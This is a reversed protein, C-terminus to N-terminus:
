KKGLFGLKKFILLMIASSAIMSFISLPFGWWVNTGPINPFNMSYISAIVTVPAFISVCITIVKMAENIRNNAMSLYMDMLNRSMDRYMDVVELLEATYDYCSRLYHSHQTKEVVTCYNIFDNIADRQNWVIRYIFLFKRGITHIKACDNNDCKVKGTVIDDEMKQLTDSLINVVPYFSSVTSEILSYVLHDLGGARINGSRLDSKVASFLDTTGNHITIVKNEGILISIPKVTLSDNLLTVNNIIFLQYDDYQEFRSSQSPKGIYKTAMPHVSLYQKIDRILADDIKGYISIWATKTDNGLYAPIDHVYMVSTENFSTDDYKIVCIHTEQTQENSAYDSVFMSPLTTLGSM